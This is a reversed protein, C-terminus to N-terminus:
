NSTMRQCPSMLGSDESAPIDLETAKSKLVDECWWNLSKSSLYVVLNSAEMQKFAKGKNIITDWNETGKEGNCSVLVSSQFQPLHHYQLSLSRTCPIIPFNLGNWKSIGVKLYRPCRCPFLNQPFFSYM